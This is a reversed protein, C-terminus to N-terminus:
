ESGELRSLVGVRELLDPESLYASVAVIRDDRLEYVAAFPTDESDDLTGEVLLRGAELERVAVLTVPVAHPTARVAALWERLGDHGRYERRPVWRLPRLVIERHVVALMSDISRRNYGDLFREVIETPDVSM